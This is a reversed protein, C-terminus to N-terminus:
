SSFVGNFNYIKTFEKLLTKRSLQYQYNGDEYMLDFKYDDDHINWIDFEKKKQIDIKGTKLVNTWIITAELNSAINKWKTNIYIDINKSIDINLLTNKIQIARTKWLDREKKLALILLHKETDMILIYRM